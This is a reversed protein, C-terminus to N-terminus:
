DPLIVSDIVHIVGNAAEIDTKVVTANDIKVKGYSSSISVDSGQVTTASKLEVVQDSYVRGPIVHYTLIGALKAKNEPLLLENVTSGLAAFAEDTPALVTFPGEGMLTESLGAAEVAALLTGFMGAGKAVEPITKTEPLIVSDIVHIVGNSTELDTATVKAGDVKVTGNDWTKVDIRQGNLTTHFDKAVVDEAYARAPVVHYTLIAQLKKKNEPKLLSEVTGAPLKAFADNTPAFVTFPGEGQLAEVM